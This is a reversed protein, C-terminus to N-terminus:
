NQRNKLNSKDPENWKVNHKHSEHVNSHTDTTLENEYSSPVTNYLQHEYKSKLKQGNVITVILM